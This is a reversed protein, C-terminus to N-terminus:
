VTQAQPRVVRRRPRLRTLTVGTLTIVAGLAQWTGLAEGLFLWSVTIAIVPVLNSFVATRTSGTKQVSVNWLVYAVGNAFVASFFVGMWGQLSVDSWQQQMLDGSGLAFLCPTAIMITVATLKLPSYRSLLPKSILTNLTWCIAAGLSLLNGPLTEINASLDGSGLGVILAIGAFSLFIGTGIAATVRETRLIISLLAVFLPTTSLLLSSNSATTLAIGKIFLTQYAVHGILSLLIITVIDERAVRLNEGSLLLIGLLCLAAVLFRLAVFAMPGIETLSQKVVTFNAGWIFAVFLMGLDAWTVSFQAKRKNEIAPQGSAPSM